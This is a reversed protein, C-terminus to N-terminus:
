ETRSMQTEESDQDEGEQPNSHRYDFTIKHMCTSFSTSSLPPLLVRCHLRSSGWGLVQVNRGETYYVEKIGMRRWEM